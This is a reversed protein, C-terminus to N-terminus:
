PPPPDDRQAAKKEEYIERRNIDISRDAKFGLRVKDGRVEIVVIEVVQNGIIVSQGKERRLVLM